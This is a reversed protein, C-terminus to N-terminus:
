FTFHYFWHSVINLKKGRIAFTEVKPCLIKSLGSDHEISNKEGRRLM